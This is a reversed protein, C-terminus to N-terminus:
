NQYSHKYPQGNIIKLLDNEITERPYEVFRGIEKNNKFIIFTPVRLIDFGKQLGSPTTKKRSVTIMELNNFNFNAAELIKYFSPVQEQSDGCWTGMFAKIKITNVIPKLQEITEKNPTYNNYGFDFWEKYPEAIFNSKTAIGVLNGDKDETAATVKKQSGCSISLVAIIIILVTKKM